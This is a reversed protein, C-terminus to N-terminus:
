HVHANQWYPHSLDREYQCTTADYVKAPSLNEGYYRQLYRKSDNPVHVVIGDLLAKKLPFVTEFAVPVTFRRERIKWSEPFFIANELSLIYKLQKQEPLIDYHYIDIYTKTERVLIKLYSNPHERSSWDQVLYKKSDLRNFLHCLNEHDGRLVAIDIDEDWPIVGGYRYAGLCTGCDVWWTIGAENLLAVLNKLANKEHLLNKEDGPRRLHGEAPLWEEPQTLDLGCSAYFSNKSQICPSQMAALMSSHRQRVELQFFALAKVTMGLAFTPVATLSYQITKFTFDARYDFRPAFTWSEGEKKATKGVLLYQTPILLSNGIKELGTAEECAVNIFLNSTISLYATVLPLFFLFCGQIISDWLKFM